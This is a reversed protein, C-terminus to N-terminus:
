RGPELFTNTQYPDFDRIIVFSPFNPILADVEQHNDAAVPNRASSSGVICPSLCATVACDASTRKPDFASMPNGGM